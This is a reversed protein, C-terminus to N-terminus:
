RTLLLWVTSSIPPVLNFGEILWLWCLYRAPMRKRLVFALVAVVVFVPLARWSALFVLYLVTVCQETIQDIM